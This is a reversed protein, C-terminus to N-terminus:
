KNLGGSCVCVACAPKLHEIVPKLLSDIFIHISIEHIAFRTFYCTWEPSYISRVIARESKKRDENRERERQEDDQNQANREKMGEGCLQKNTYASAHTLVTDTKRHIYIMWRKGQMERVVREKELLGARQGM